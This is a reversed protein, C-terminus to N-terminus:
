RFSFGSNVEYNLDTPLQLFSKNSFHHFSNGKTGTAAPSPEQIGSLGASVMQRTHLAPIEFVMSFTIQSDEGPIILLLDCQIKASTCCVTSDVVNRPATFASVGCRFFKCM